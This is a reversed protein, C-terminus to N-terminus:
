HDQNLAPIVLECADAAVSRPAERTADICGGQAYVGQPDRMRMMRSLVADRRSANATTQAIMAEVRSEDVRREGQSDVYVGDRWHHVEICKAELSYPQERKWFNGFQGNGLYLVWSGEYGSADSSVPDPNRFWVRDGPVYYRTPMPHDLSGHEILFVDHFQGSRIVQQECRRQLTAYLAPLHERLEMALGLLIVYETARYCSFGYMRGSIDPQTAARLADILDCGERLVFGHNEDERWLAPPRDAVSTKFDMATLRAARAIHRRVRVSSALANLSAFKLAVPSALLSLVIERDLVDDNSSQLLSCRSRLELTDHNPTWERAASPSLSAHLTHGTDELTM